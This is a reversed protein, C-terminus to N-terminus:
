AALFIHDYYPKRRAAPPLGGNATCIRRNAWYSMYYRWIMTKLEKMTYNESKYERCRGGASNLSQIIGYKKVAARYEESTYQSGRDSHIICGKIDPYSKNANELTHCCLSARMNYEIAIGLPMLDFCDFIASVYL